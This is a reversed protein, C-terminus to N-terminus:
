TVTPLVRLARGQGAGHVAARSRTFGGMHLPIGVIGEVGVVAIEAAANSEM